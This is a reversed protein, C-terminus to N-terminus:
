VHARGIETLGSFAMKFFIALIMPFILLWFVTNKERLFIKLSNVYIHKFM